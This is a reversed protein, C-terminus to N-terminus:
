GWRICIFGLAVDVPMDGQELPTAFLQEWTDVNYAYVYLESPIYIIRHEVDLTLGYPFYETFTVVPTLSGTGHPDYIYLYNASYDAAIGLFYVVDQVPDYVLNAVGAVPLVFSSLQNSAIDYALLVEQYYDYPDHVEENATIYIVGQDIETAVQNLYIDQLRLVETVAFTDPDIRWIITGNGMYGVVYVNDTTHDVLPFVPTDVGFAIDTIIVGTTIDVVSLYADGGYSLDSVFLHNRESNLATPGPGNGVEIYKTFEGDAYEIVEHGYVSGEEENNSLNSIYLKGTVPDVTVLNISGYPALAEDIIRQRTQIEGTLPDLAYLFGSYSTVYLSTPTYDVCVHEPVPVPVPLPVTPLPVVPTIEQEILELLAEERAIERALEAVEEARVLADEPLPSM